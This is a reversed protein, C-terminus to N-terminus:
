SGASRVQLVREARVLSAHLAHVLARHGGPGTAAGAQPLAEDGTRVLFERAGCGSCVPLAVISLDIIGPAIEVGVELDVRPLRRVRQCTSCQQDVDNELLELIPM